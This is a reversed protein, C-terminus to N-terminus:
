NSINSIYSLTQTHLNDLNAYSLRCLKAILSPTQLKLSKVQGRVYERVLCSVIRM